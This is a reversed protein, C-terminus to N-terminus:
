EELLCERPQGHVAPRNHIREDAVVSAHGRGLGEAFAHSEPTAELEVSEEPTFPEWGVLLQRTPHAHKEPHHPAVRLVPVRRQTRERSLRADLDGVCVPQHPTDRPMAPRLQTARARGFHQAPKLAAGM